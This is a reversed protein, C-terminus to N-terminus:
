GYELNKGIPISLGDKPNSYLIFFIEEAVKEGYFKVYLRPLCEM